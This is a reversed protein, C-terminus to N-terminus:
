KQNESSVIPIVVYNVIVNFKESPPIATNLVGKVGKFTLIKKYFDYIKTPM